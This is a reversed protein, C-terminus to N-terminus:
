HWKNLVSTSLFPLTLACILVFPWSIGFTLSSVIVAAIGNLWTALCIPCSLLEGLLGHNIVLHMFVDDNTVKDDPIMRFIRLIKISMSSRFWIVLANTALLWVLIYLGLFLTAM